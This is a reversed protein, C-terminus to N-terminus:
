AAAQAQKVEEIAKLAEQATTKVKEDTDKEAVTQLMTEAIGIDQQNAPDAVSMLAIIGAGRVEGDVDSMAKEITGIGPLRSLPQQMANKLAQMEEDTVKIGQQEKETREKEIQAQVLTDYEQRFHRQLNALTLLSGIKVGTATQKEPGTFASVDSTALAALGKFSSGDEPLLYKNVEERTAPDLNNIDNIFGNITSLAAEQDAFTPQQAGAQPAIISLASVLPQVKEGVAPTPQIVTPEVVPQVTQQVVPQPTPPVQVQDIVPPPVMVQPQQMAVPPQPPMAPMPMPMPVPAAQPMPPAMMPPPAPQYQPMPMSIPAIQPMGPYVPMAQPAVGPMSGGPSATPNNIDIKVANYQPVQSYQMPVQQMQPMQGYQPMQPVQQYQAPLLYTPAGSSLYNPTMM